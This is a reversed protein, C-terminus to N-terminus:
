GIGEEEEEGPGQWDDNWKRARQTKVEKFHM